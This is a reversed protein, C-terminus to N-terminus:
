AAAFSLRTLLFSRGQTTRVPGCRSPCTKHQNVNPRLQATDVSIGRRFRRWSSSAAFGSLTTLLPSPDLSEMLDMWSGLHRAKSSLDSTAPQTDEVAVLVINVFFSFRGNSELLAGWLIVTGCECSLRDIVTAVNVCM